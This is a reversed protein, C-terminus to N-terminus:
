SSEPPPRWPLRFLTLGTNAAAASAAGRRSGARGAKTEPTKTARFETLAFRLSNVIASDGPWLANVDILSSGDLTRKQGSQTRVCDPRHGEFRRRSLGRWLTMWGLASTACRAKWSRPGLCGSF